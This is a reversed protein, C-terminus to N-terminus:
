DRKGKGLFCKTSLPSCLVLSSLLVIWNRM